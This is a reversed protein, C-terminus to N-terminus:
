PLAASLNQHPHVWFLARAGTHFMNKMSKHNLFVYKM